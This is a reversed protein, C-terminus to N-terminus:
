ARSIAEIDIELCVETWTRPWWGGWRQIVLVREHGGEKSLCRSLPRQPGCYTAPSAMCDRVSIDSILGRPLSENFWDFRARQGRARKAPNQHGVGKLALDARETVCLSCLFTTAAAYSFSVTVSTNMSYRLIGSSYTRHSSCSWDHFYACVKGMMMCSKEKESGCLVVGSNGNWHSAPRRSCCSLSIM